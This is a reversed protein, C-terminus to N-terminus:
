ALRRDDEGSFAISLAAIGNLLLEIGLLIGLVSVASVPFDSFVIVGLIVSLLGSLVLLWRFGGGAITFGLFMKAIGSLIFSVGVVISLAIAGKLPDGVIMIGALTAAAGLIFAWLKRGGGEISFAAIIQLVGLIIFSWGALLAAAFSAPYPNIILSYLGALVALAGIVFLLIKAM